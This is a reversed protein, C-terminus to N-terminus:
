HETAPTRSPAAPRGHVGGRLSIRIVFHLL